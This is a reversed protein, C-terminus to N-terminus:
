TLSYKERYIKQKKMCIIVYTHLFIFYSKKFMKSGQESQIQDYIVMGNHRANEFWNFYLPLKGGHARTFNSKTAQITPSIQVCNVNGPEIKAQMLFNLVGNIEKAIIGLYGIENQIIIPQETVFEDNIFYRVGTISFFSRKRNLIEGKYDDYFWFSDNSLTTQKISIRTKQNLDNIWALVDRTDNVNGDRNELSNILAKKFNFNDFM